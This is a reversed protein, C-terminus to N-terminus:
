LALTLHAKNPLGAVEVISHIHSWIEDWKVQLTGEGTTIFAALQADYKLQHSFIIYNMDKWAQDAETHFQGLFQKCDRDPQNATIASFAANCARHGANITEHVTAQAVACHMAELGSLNQFQKALEVGLAQCEGVPVMPYPKGSSHDILPGQHNHPM